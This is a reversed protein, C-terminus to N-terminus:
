VKVGFDLAIVRLRAIVAPDDQSGEDFRDPNVGKLLLKTKTTAIVTPNGHARQEVISDIM